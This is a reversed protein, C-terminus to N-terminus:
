DYFIILIPSHLSSLYEPQSHLVLIKKLRVTCSTWLLNKGLLFFLFKFSSFFKPLSIIQVTYVIVIFHCKCYSVKWKWWFEWFREPKSYLEQENLTSYGYALALAKRNRIWLISLKWSLSCTTHSQTASHHTTAQTQTATATTTSSCGGGPYRVTARGGDLYLTTLMLGCVVKADTRM